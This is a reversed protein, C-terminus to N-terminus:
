QIIPLVEEPGKHRGRSLIDLWEDGVTPAVDSAHSEPAINVCILYSNTGSM